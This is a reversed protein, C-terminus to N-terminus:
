VVWLAIKWMGRIGKKAGWELLKGMQHSQKNVRFKDYIFARIKQAAHADGEQQMQGCLIYCRYFLSAFARKNQPQLDYINNFAIDLVTLIRETRSSLDPGTLSDPHILIIHYAKETIWQIKPAKLLCRLGLEWDDWILCQTNWGGMDRLFDTRFIMSVSNLMSNLIHTHPTSVPEYARTQLKEGIKQQTPICILDNEEDWTTPLGTFIDDSDFFYVWKSTCLSLGKNRAAAAGPTQETTVQTNAREKALATCLELSGDISGNDVLIVPYSDPISELTKEIYTKRNYVPIVITIDM